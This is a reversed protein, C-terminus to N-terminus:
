RAVSYWAPFRTHWAHGGVLAALLGGLPQLRYDLFLETGARVDDLTVMVAGACRPVKIADACGWVAHPTNAVDVDAVQDWYFAAPAVNASRSPPPHNILHACRSGEMTVGSADICGAPAGHHTNLNLLYTADTRDYAWAAGDGFYKGPYLAVGTGRRTDDAVFLGLGAGHVSSEKVDVEADGRWARRAEERVRAALLEVSSENFAACLQSERSPQQFITWWERVYGRLAAM